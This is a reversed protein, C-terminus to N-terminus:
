HSPTSPSGSSLGAVAGIAIAAAAVLGLSILLTRRRHQKDPAIVAGAPRSAATGV